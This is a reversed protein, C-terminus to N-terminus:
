GTEGKQSRAAGDPPRKKRSLVASAARRLPFFAAKMFWTKELSHVKRKERQLPCQGCSAAPTPMFGPWAATFTAGTLGRIIATEFAFPSFDHHV